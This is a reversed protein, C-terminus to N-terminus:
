LLLNDAKKFLKEVFVLYEKSDKESILFGGSYLDLNRKQRMQNGMMEIDGDHLVSGIKEIIKIHHGPASRVRYGHKAILALGLKIMADYAFRFVVEPESSNKAISFDRKASAVYQSIQEPEFKLPQFYDNEFITM